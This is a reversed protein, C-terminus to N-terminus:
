SWSTLLSGDMEKADELRSKSPERDSQLAWESGLYREETEHTVASCYKSYAERFGHLRGVLEDMWSPAADSLKLELLVRRGEEGHERPGDIPIWGRPDTGWETKTWPQYAIERDITLRVDELPEPSKLAERNCTIMVAPRARHAMFLYLFSELNPRDAPSLPPLDQYTGDLLEQVCRAPIMVRKKVIINKVKRKVEFFAPGSAPDGYRRIRLKFRDLQDSMHNQFFQFGETDCYLSTNRQVASVQNGFIDPALYRTAFALVVQAVSEPLWYKLEFREFSTRIAQAM